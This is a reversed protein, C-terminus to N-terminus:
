ISWGEATKPNLGLEDLPADDYVDYVDYIIKRYVVLFVSKTPKKGSTDEFKTFFEM